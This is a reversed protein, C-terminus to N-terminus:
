SFYGAGRLIYYMAVFISIILAVDAWYKQWWRMLRVMKSSPETGKMKTSIPLKDLVEEIQCEVKVKGIKLYNLRNEALIIEKYLKEKEALLSKIKEKMKRRKKM